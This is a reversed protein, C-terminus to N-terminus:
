FVFKHHLHYNCCGYCSLRLFIMVWHLVKPEHRLPYRTQSRILLNWTRIRALEFKQAWCKLVTFLLSDCNCQIPSTFFHVTKCFGQMKMIILAWRVKSISWDFNYMSFGPISGPVERMSLSREVMQALEGLTHPQHLLASVYQTIDQSLNITYHFAMYQQMIIECAKLINQMFTIHIHSM